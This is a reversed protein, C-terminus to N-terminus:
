IMAKARPARPPTVAMPPTKPNAPRCYERTNSNHLAACTRSCFLHKKGVTDSWRKSIFSGCWDCQGDWRRYARGRTTVGEIPKRGFSPEPNGEAGGTLPNGSNVANENKAAHVAWHCKYCLTIGNSIEYRLEPYEKYPKIHHAHMEVGSVGCHQCTASDRSLVSDQWKYHKNGRHRKKNPDPNWKWNQEGFYRLGGKDACHKSCFKRKM